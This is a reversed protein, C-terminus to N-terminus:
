DRGLEQRTRAATSSKIFEGVFSPEAKRKKHECMEDTKTKECSPNIREITKGNIGKILFPQTSRQQTGAEEEAYPLPALLTSGVFAKHYWASGPSHQTTRSQIYLSLAGPRSLVPRCFHLKSRLGRDHTSSSHTCVAQPAPSYRWFHGLHRRKSSVRRFSVQCKIPCRTCVSRGQLGKRWIAAQPSRLGDGDTLPCPSQM